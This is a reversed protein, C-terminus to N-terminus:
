KVMNNEILISLSASTNEEFNIFKAKFNYPLLKCYVHRGCPLFYAMKTFPVLGAWEDIFCYVKVCCVQKYTPLMLFFYM